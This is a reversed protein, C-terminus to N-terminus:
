QVSVRRRGRESVVGRRGVAGDRGIPMGSGCTSRRRRIAWAWSRSPRAAICNWPWRTKSRNAACRTSIAQRMRGPSGCPLRRPRRPGSAGDSRPGRRQAVVVADDAFTGARGPVLRGRGGVRSSCRGGQCRDKGAESDGSATARRHVHLSHLHVLDVMQEPTMGSSGPMPTGPMGYAIRRYLSAPDPNGKFIGLTFDRPRTPMKEDDVMQQLATAGDPKAMANLHLRVQCLRGPWPCDGGVTPPGIAPVDTSDGPTTFEDVYEQIEQQVDDAAIEEDTLEEEEKLSKIYSKAPGRAAFGCCRTSWRTASKRRDLHAWPPMSSGPMGRVLVALLDERTPVNNNTSVLRFRGARFDRPKPFLFTAAVGKGDGREGHCAVCHRAFLQQGREASNLPVAPSPQQSASPTAPATGITSSTQDSAASTATGPEQAPESPPVSRRCGNMALVVGAIAVVLSLGRRRGDTFRGSLDIPM